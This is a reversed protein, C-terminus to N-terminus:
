TYCPISRDRWDDLTAADALYASSLSLVGNVVTTNGTYTNAGSLTLIGNGRKTLGGSPSDALLAQAIEIDQGNSDIVAGGSKVMAMTLGDMFMSNSNSAARLTGGNFNFTSEGLAGGPQVRLTTLSGGNLNVVSVATDRDSMRVGETGFASVSGTGSINLTGTGGELGISLFSGTNRQIFNGGTVNVVGVGTSSRGISVRNFTEFLGGSQNVTGQGRKGVFTGSDSNCRIEGAGSLNIVGTTTSADSVNLDGVDHIFQGNDKVNLTGQGNLQRGISIYAVSHELRANDGITVEGVSDTGNGIFMRTGVNVISNGGMTLVGTTGVQTEDVSGGISFNDSDALNFANQAVVNWQAIGSLNAIGSAGDAGVHGAISSIEGGSLNLEGSSGAGQGIQFLNNSTITGGSINGIGKGGQAGFIFNDSGIKTISGDTMNLTGDSGLGIVVPERSITITGNELNMVGPSGLGILMQAAIYLGDSTNINVTGNAGGGEGM